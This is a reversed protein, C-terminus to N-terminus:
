TRRLRAAVGPGAAMGAGPLARGPCRGARGAPKGGPYLGMKVPRPCAMLRWQGLPFRLGGGFHSGRASRAHHPWRAALRGSGARVRTRWFSRSWSRATRAMMQSPTPVLSKWTSEGASAENAIRSIHRLMARQNRSSPARVASCTASSYASKASRMTPKTGSRGDGAPQACCPGSSGTWHACWPSWRLLGRRSALGTQRGAAVAAGCQALDGLRGSQADRAAAVVRLGFYPRRVAGAGPRTRPRKM